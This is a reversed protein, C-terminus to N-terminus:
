GAAGPELMWALLEKMEGLSRYVGNPKVPSKEIEDRHTEGSLVLLGKAGHDAGTAVDTYLRDGVFAVREREAGTRRMVMDVTERFPKGLYKPKVGTSLTIAACISGCDPIFGNETPCNIDLHTALFAAGERIFTCAQELKAYTLTTDFGVLVIDPRPQGSEWLRIGEERFSEELAPTGVLYVTQDPCTEKLYAITVDGSTMIQERTIPCGMSALREMYVKPSRSSNNTFFLVRRGKSQVYQVFELAGDILRNGLYFTGDLDLVFLEISALLEARARDEAGYHPVARAVSKTAVVPVGCGACDEILVQGAEVPATVSIKHIEEMVEFIKTKPIDSKTKVSVRGITGGEVRVTSTVIRTPSLVEKRAYDAGRQCTNGTVSVAGGDITVTLPCGLPCGICILNRVEM